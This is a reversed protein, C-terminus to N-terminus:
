CKRLFDILDPIDEPIDLKKLEPGPLMDVQEPQPSPTAPMEIQNPQPASTEPRLIEHICMYEWSGPVPEESWVMEDLDAIPLYEGDDSDVEPKPLLTEDFMLHWHVGETIAM